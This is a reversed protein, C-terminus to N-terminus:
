TGRPLPLLASGRLLVPDFSFVHEHPAAACRGVIRDPFATGGDQLDVDSGCVPCPAWHRVVSLWGSPTAGQRRRVLHLQAFDQTFALQGMPLIVLRDSPLRLWPRTGFRWCSWAVALMFGGIAIGASSDAGPSLMVVLALWVIGLDLIVNSLVMLFLALGRRSLLPFGGPPSLWRLPLALRAPEATYHIAGDHRLEADDAAPLARALPEFRFGWVTQNGKGGGTRRSLTVQATIGAHRADAARGSERSDWWEAMRASRVWKGPDHENAQEVELSYERALTGVDILAPQDGREAAALARQALLELLRAAKSNDANRALWGRLWQAAQLSGAPLTQAAEPRNQDDLM